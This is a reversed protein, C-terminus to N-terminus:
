QSCTRAAQERMHQMREICQAQKDGTAHSCTKQPDMEALHARMEQCAPSNKDLTMTTDTASCPGLYSMRIKEHRANAASGEDETILYSRAGDRTITVKSVRPPTGKCTTEMVARSLSNELMRTTCNPEAAKDKHEREHRLSQAATQCLTMHGGLMKKMEDARSSELLEMQWSGRTPPLDKMMLPIPFDEAGLAPAAGLLAASAALLAPLVLRARRAGTMSHIHLTM